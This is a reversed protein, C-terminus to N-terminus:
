ENGHGEFLRNFRDDAVVFSCREPLVKALLATLNEGISTTRFGRMDVLNTPERWSDRLRLKSYPLAMRDRRALGIFHRAIRRRIIWDPPGGLRPPSSHQESLPLHVRIRFDFVDLCMEVCPVDRLIRGAMSYVAKIQSKRREWIAVRIKGIGRQLVQACVKAQQCGSALCDIHVDSPQTDYITRLARNYVALCAQLFNVSRLSFDGAAFYFFVEHSPYAGPQGNVDVEATAIRLTGVWKDTRRGLSDAM